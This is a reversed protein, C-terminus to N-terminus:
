AAPRPRSRRTKKVPTTIANAKDAADQADMEAETFAGFEAEYAAVADALARQRRLYALHDTLADQLIASVNIRDGEDKVQRYLDEPLYVQMKPM